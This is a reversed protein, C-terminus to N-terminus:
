QEAASSVEGSTLKEKSGTLAGIFRDRANRVMDAARSHCEKAKERAKTTLCYNLAKQLSLNNLADATFVVPWGILEAQRKIKHGGAVPDIAIAPIGHKLALVTGHLRTTIVVDMRAILSEVESPTRLSTSNCDLRTDISVTAMERSDVMNMISANAEDVLANDYHEVLCIGVVPVLPQRSLFVIDANVDKSSDREILVDFPNWKELPEFMSLNLGIMRCDAFRKLFDLELCKKEFPGCVFLVHSYQRPDTFRWDIGGSFPPAVAIDYAFGISDLWECAVDRALLDGATAHGEQYSFWGAILIKM